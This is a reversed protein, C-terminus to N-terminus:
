AVAEKMQSIEQIVADLVAGAAGQATGDEERPMAGALEELSAGHQLAISILTAVELGSTHMATTLKNCSIFVERVFGQHFGISVAYSVASFHGPHDVQIGLSPRRSPLRQRTM